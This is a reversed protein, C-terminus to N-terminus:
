GDANTRPSSPWSTCSIWRRLTSGRRAVATLVARRLRLTRIQVTWRRPTRRPSRPSALSRTWSRGSTPLTWDWTACRGCSNLRAVADIDYLRYGAPNRDTPTCSGCDSYFRIAKVTLGTRRALDGIPYLTDGDM